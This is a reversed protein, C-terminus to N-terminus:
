WCGCPWQTWANCAGWPGLAAWPGFVSTPDCGGGCAQKAEATAQEDQPGVAASPAAAAAHEPTDDTGPQALCGTGALMAPISVALVSAINKPHIM